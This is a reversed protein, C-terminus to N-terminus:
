SKEYQILKHPFLIKTDKSLNILIAMGNFRKFGAFTTNKSDNSMSYFPSLVLYDQVFKKFHSGDILDFWFTQGAWIPVYLVATVDQFSLLYKITRSILSVPPCLWYIESSHLNQTFFNIGRTNCQPIKSFFRNCKSNKATAFCDLTFRLSFQAEIFKYSNVDISWEDSSQNLKSGVDALAINVDNRPSWIPIINVSLKRELIKITVVDRQIEPKRSGRNLFNHVNQSDTLWYVIGPHKEFWEFDKELTKIISLLERHSSSLNIESQTFIFENVLSFSEDANYVFSQLQSSDSVFTCYDDSLNDAMYNNSLIKVARKQSFIHQGNYIDIHEQLFTLERIAHDDM